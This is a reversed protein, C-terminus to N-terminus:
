EEKKARHIRSCDECAVIISALAHAYPSQSEMVAAVKQLLDSIQYDGCRTKIEDRLAQIEKRQAMNENLLDTVTTHFPTLDADEASERGGRGFAIWDTSVRCKTAIDMIWAPPIKGRRRATSISAQKIGLVEALDTETSVKAADMMRSVVEDFQKRIIKFNGSSIESTMKDDNEEHIM